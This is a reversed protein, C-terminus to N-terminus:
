GGVNTDPLGAMSLHHGRANFSPRTVGYDAALSLGSVSSQDGSSLLSFSVSLSAQHPDSRATVSTDTTTGPLGSPSVLSSTFM